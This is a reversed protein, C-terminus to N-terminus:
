YLKAYERVREIFDMIDGKSTSEMFLRIAWGGRCGRVGWLGAVHLYANLTSYQLICINLYMTSQCQMNFVIEQRVRPTRTICLPCASWPSQLSSLQLSLTGYRLTAKCANQTSSDQKYIHQGITFGFNPASLRTINIHKKAICECSKLFEM